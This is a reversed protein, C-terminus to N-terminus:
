ILSDSELALFLIRGELRVAVLIGAADAPERSLARAFTEWLRLLLEGPAGQEECNSRLAPRHRNTEYSIM